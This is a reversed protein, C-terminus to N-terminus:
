LNPGWSIVKLAIPELSKVDVDHSSLIQIIKKINASSMAQELLPKFEPSRLAKYFEGFKANKKCKDNIMNQYASHPLHQLIEEVFTTFTGLSGHHHYNNNCQRHYKHHYHHQNHHGETHVKAKVEFDQLLVIRVLPQRENAIKAVANANADDDVVVVVDRAVYKNNKEAMEFQQPRKNLVEKVNEIAMTNPKSIITTTTGTNTTMKDVRNDVNADANVDNYDYLSAKVQGTTMKTAGMHRTTANATTLHLFELIDIIEPIDLLQRQLKAFEQSRLYKFATRFNGDVLYHKAVIEDVTATPILNEFDKFENVIDPSIHATQKIDSATTNVSKHTIPEYATVMIVMTMFLIILKNFKKM